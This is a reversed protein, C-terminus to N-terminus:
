SFRETSSQSWLIYTSDGHTFATRKLKTEGTEECCTGCCVFKSMAAKVADAYVVALGIATCTGMDVPPTVESVLLDAIRRIEAAAPGEGLVTPEGKDGGDAVAGDIPIQGLLPVGLEEALDAGGGSGFIEHREGDPAVFASMNEIVGAIRLYNKRGMSAARAAVKQAALTPTTIVIM